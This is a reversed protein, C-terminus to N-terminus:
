YYVSLLRSDFKGPNEQWLLKGSKCDVSLAVLSPNEKSSKARVVAASLYVKGDVVVPSSWGTGPLRFKWAVNKKGSWSVPIGKEPSIGKAGPGGFQPWDEGPACTCVLLALLFCCRNLM